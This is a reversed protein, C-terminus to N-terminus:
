CRSCAPTYPAAAFDPCKLQKIETLVKLNLSTECAHYDKLLFRVVEFNARSLFLLWLVSYYESSEISQITSRGRGLCNPYHLSVKYENLKDLTKAEM